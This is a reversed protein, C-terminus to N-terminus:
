EGRLSQVPDLKFVSLLPGVSGALALLLSVGVAVPFFELRLAADAAFVSSAVFKAILGGLLFGGVGSGVGLLLAEASFIKLLDWRSGGMAKLLGIEKGRELVATSMTGAVSSGATVLVVATVLLMLLQVKGLLEESTRGVQRLEKVVAGPLFRQLSAAQEQLSGKGTDALLRVQSVQGPRGMQDQLEKLDIFLTGDEEGGTSVLGAVRVRLPRKGGDFDFLDGTHVHYRPTLDSGGLVEGARPWDGAVQWWPSLRRVQTFDVGECPIQVGKLTLAGKLHFSYDGKVGSKALAALVQDQSLYSPEGVAGFRLGGSGVEVRASEPMIVLNAGYKRTEEAVRAKMSASVLGLATALSSALTLVALLLLTRGWRHVLARLVIHALWRRRTM